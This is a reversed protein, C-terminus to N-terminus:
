SMANPPFLDGYSSSLAHDRWNERVKLTTRVIKALRTRSVSSVLTSYLVDRPARLTKEDVGMGRLIDVAESRWMLRVIAMPDADRNVRDPRLRRFTIGGSRNRAASIVGWWPPLQCVASELHREAAILTAKDVVYGYAAVQRSLRMLNDAEAKIEVGRIHGNIVAIDIRAAGHQLGLEDVILTDACRRAPALLRQYAALRIDSDRLPLPM